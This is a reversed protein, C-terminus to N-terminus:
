QNYRDDGEITLLNIVKKVEDILNRSCSSEIDNLIDLVENDIFKRKIFEVSSLTKIAVLIEALVLDIRQQDEDFFSADQTYETLVSSLVSIVDSEGFKIKNSEVSSSLNEIAGCIRLVVRMEKRQRDLVRAFVDACGAEIFAHKCETHHACTNRMAWAIFELPVADDIFEEMLSVLLPAVGLEYLRNKAKSNKCTLNQIAGAGRHVIDRDTSHQKIVDIIIEEGNQQSVLARNGPTQSLSNRLAYLGRHVLSSEDPYKQLIGLILVLIGKNGFESKTPVHSATACICFELLPKLHSPKDMLATMHGALQVTLGSQRLNNKLTAGEIQYQPTNMIATFFDYIVYVDNLPLTKLANMSMRVYRSTTIEGRSIQAKAILSTLSRFIYIITTSSVDNDNLFKVMVSLTQDTQMKQIAENVQVIELDYLSDFAECIAKDQLKAAFLQKTYFEQSPVTIKKMREVFTELVDKGRSNDLSTLSPYENSIYTTLATGFDDADVENHNPFNDEWFKDVSPNTSKEGEMIEQDLISNRPKISILESIRTIDEAVNNLEASNIDGNPRCFCGCGGTISANLLEIAEGVKTTLPRVHKYGEDDVTMKSLDDMLITEITKIVHVVKMASEHHNLSENFSKAERIYDRLVNVTGDQM